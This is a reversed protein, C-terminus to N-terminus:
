LPLPSPILHAATSPVAPTRSRGGWVALRRHQGAAAVNAAYSKAYAYPAAPAPAEPVCARPLGKEERGQAARGGDGVVGWM